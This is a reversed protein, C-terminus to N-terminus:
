NRGWFRVVAEKLETYSQELSHNVIVLDFDQARSMEASANKLRRQISAEDDTGRGRLRKELTDLDPPTVFLLLTDKSYLARLSDAGQVDIDLLVSKGQSLAQDLQKRSTGYLNGHVEAWEAFENLSVRKQFEAKSIFFYEVGDREHGRPPRTTTSISLQLRDSMEALLRSCLTTKGAGSPASVM